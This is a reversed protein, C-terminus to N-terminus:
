DDAITPGAEDLLLLKERVEKSAFGDGISRSYESM